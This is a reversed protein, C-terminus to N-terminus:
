AQARRRRFMLANYDLDEAAVGLHRLMSMAQARHHVEHLVLQTFIDGRTTTVITPQGDDDTVRYEIDTKWDRVAALAARTREAQESWAEVLAAFPPAQEEVLPWRDYEPVDRGEIRLVYYWESALIHTLTRSLSRRGIPFERTYDAASLPRVWEFLRNRALALYRYADTPEIIM